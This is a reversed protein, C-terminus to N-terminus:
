SNYREFSAWTTLFPVKENHSARPLGDVQNGRPPSTSHSFLYFTDHQAGFSFLRHRRLAIMVMMMQVLAIMVMVMAIVIVM